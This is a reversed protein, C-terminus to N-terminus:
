LQINLKDEEIPQRSSGIVKRPTSQTAPQVNSLSGSRSGRNPTGAGVKTVSVPASGITPKTSPLCRLFALHQALKTKFLNKIVNSGIKFLDKRKSYRKIRFLARLQAAQIKRIFISSLANTPQGM